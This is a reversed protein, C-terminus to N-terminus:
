VRNIYMFPDVDSQDESKALSAKQAETIMKTRVSCEKQKVALQFV